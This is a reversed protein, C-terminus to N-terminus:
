TEKKTLQKHWAKFNEHIEKLQRRLGASAPSDKVRYAGGLKDVERVLGGFHAEFGRMDYLVQGNKPRAKEEQEAETDDGPQRETTTQPKRRPKQTRGDLGRRPEARSQGGHVTARVNGVFTPSVHCVDALWRDSRGAWEQDSLLLKVAAIKDRDTRPLGHKANAGASFLIADRKTGQRVEALIDKFGAWGRAAIRYHGDGPWLHTGDDFLVVPDREDDPNWNGEKMLTGYQKVLDGSLEHRSQTEGVRIRDLRVLQKESM